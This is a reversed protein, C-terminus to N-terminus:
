WIVRQDRSYLIIFIKFGTSVDDHSTFSLIAEVNKVEFHCRLRPFTEPERRLMNSGAASHKWDKTGALSGIEPQSYLLENMRDADLQM